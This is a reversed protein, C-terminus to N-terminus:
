WVWHTRWKALRWGGVEEWVAAAAVVVAGVAPSCMEGRRVLLLYGVPSWHEIRRKERGAVAIGAAAAAFAAVAVVVASDAAETRGSYSQTNQRLPLLLESGVATELSDPSHLLHWVEAVLQTNNEAAPGVVTAASGAVAAALQTCAPTCM